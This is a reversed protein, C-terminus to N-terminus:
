LTTHTKHHKRCVALLGILGLVMLIFTSPEPVCHIEMGWAVGDYVTLTNIGLEYDWSCLYSAFDIFITQDMVCPHGPKDWLGDWDVGVGGYWLDQYPYFPPSEMGALPNPISDMWLHPGADQYNDQYAQIWYLEGVNDPIQPNPDYDAYFTVGLNGPCDNYAEYTVIDLFGNLTNGMVLNWNPNFANWAGWGANFLPDYGGAVAPALLQIANPQVCESWCINGPHAPCPDLLSIKAQGATFDNFTIAQSTATCLTLCLMLLLPFIKKMKMALVEQEIRKKPILSNHRM